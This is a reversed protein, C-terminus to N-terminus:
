RSVVIRRPASRRGDVGLARVSYVHRGRLARESFTLARASRRLVGDRFVLYSRLRAHDASRTWALLVQGNRVRARLRGPAAPARVAAPSAVVSPAAVVLAARNDSVDPEYSTTSVSAALTGPGPTLRFRLPTSWGNPLFDLACALTTGRTCGSGREFAVPALLVSGPPLEVEASVGFATGAAPDNAVTVVVDVPEGARPQAPSTAVAVSLDPPLAGGGGGGESVAPPVPTPEPEPPPAPPPPSAPTTVTVPTSADGLNGAADLARVAYTYTTSPQVAANTWSLESTTGVHAGGRYIRYSVASADDPAASWSLDVRLPEM